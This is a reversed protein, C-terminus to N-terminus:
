QDLGTTGTESNSTNTGGISSGDITIPGEIARVDGGEANPQEQWWTNTQDANLSRGEAEVGTDSPSRNLMALSFSLVLFIGGLVSATKSLINGSRSGFASTSGGSFVGGLSDGEENQILVMLVLLFAVIIFLVLIVTNLIGM